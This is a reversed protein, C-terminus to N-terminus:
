YLVSLLGVWQDEPWVDCMRTDVQRGIATCKVCGMDRLGHSVDALVHAADPQELLKRLLSEVDPSPGEHRHLLGLIEQASRCEYVREILLDAYESLEATGSTRLATALEFSETSTRKEGFDEVIQKAAQGGSRGQEEIATAYVATHVSEAQDLRRLLQDLPQALTVSQFRKNRCVFVSTGNARMDPEPFRAELLKRRVENEVAKPTLFEAPADIGNEIVDIIAGAFPTYPSGPRLSPVLQRGKAAVLTCYEPEALWEADDAVPTGAAGLFAGGSYCSDIVLLTAAANPRRTLMRRVALFPLHTHPWAHESDTFAFHLNHDPVWDDTFVQGHACIYIFLGDMGPQNATRQIARAADRVSVKGALVEVHGSKPLDWMQPSKVLQGLERASPVATPVPAYGSSAEYDSVGILLAYSRAPDPIRSAPM